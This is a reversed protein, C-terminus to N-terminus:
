CIVYNDGLGIERGIENGSVASTTKTAENEPLKVVAALASSVNAHFYNTM